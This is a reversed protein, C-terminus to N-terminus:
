QKQSNAYERGDVPCLVNAEAEDHESERHIDYTHDSSAGYAFVRGALAAV